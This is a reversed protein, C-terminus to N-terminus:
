LEIIKFGASRILRNYVALGIGDQSPPQAYVTLAGKEDLKRLASFLKHAQERDNSISGYSIVPIKIDGKCEDFCLAYVGSQIKSNVYSVFQETSGNLIIVDARPSYHKYKVGPSLVKDGRGPKAMVARDIKVKGICESIMDATVAGPRLIVPTESLLSIVTSEIGVECDGADVIMDVRGNMDAITHGAKTPSPSGSLNASPAALATGSQRIIELAVEHSPMRVAVSNLGGSTVDPVIDRKKLIMTLPGPWFKDALKYAIDPIDFCLMDIDSISAIHVILPNDAPRGKASFIGAVASPNLADAALGYVTETPIVVLGGNKIIEGAQKLEDLSKTQNTIKVLKTDTTRM